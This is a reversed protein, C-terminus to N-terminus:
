AALGLGALLGAIEERETKGVPRLPPRPAGGHFGILDLAAKLGGIGHRRTVADTLPDLLRNKERAQDQKGQAALRAIESCHHPAVNGVAIVAGAAGLALGAGLAGANGILVSVDRGAGRAADIMGSLSELDGSSDKIGAIRDHRLLDAFLSAGIPIDTFFPVSYLIIPGPSADAVRLFHERLVADTMAPRYYDPVGLLAATAGLDFAESVARIAARTSQRGTGVIMARSAPTAARASRIVATKEADDLLPAEGNSGLVVYGAIPQENWRGINEALHAPSFEDNDFPTPIPPYLGRFM